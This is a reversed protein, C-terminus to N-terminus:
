PHDILGKSRRPLMTDRVRVDYISVLQRYSVTPKSNLMRCDRGAVTVTHWRYAQVGTVIGIKQSQAELRPGQEIHLEFHAGIPMTEYSTNMDGLYGIRKLEQKMTQGRGAVERLNHAIELPIKGAWVGSAVMSIPFRAGEENTWNIVGVPYETEIDQEQLVRLLEVGACVGLIGDFRGGSPQTDLHSGVCTPKGERRGKKIAFTNGMSDINIHCGLSKCTEVFWDRAMRDADSLSLRSM